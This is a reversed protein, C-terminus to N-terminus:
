LVHTEGGAIDSNARLINLPSSWNIANKAPIVHNANAMEVVSPDFVVTVSLIIEQLSGASKGKM